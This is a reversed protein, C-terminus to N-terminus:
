RSPRYNKWIIKGDVNIWQGPQVTGDEAPKYPSQAQKRKVGTFPEKEPINQSKWFPQNCISTEASM